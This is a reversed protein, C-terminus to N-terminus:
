KRVKEFDSFEGRLVCRMYYVRDKHLRFCYQEDKRDILNKINRGISFRHTEVLHDSNPFSRM